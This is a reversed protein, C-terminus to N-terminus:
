SHRLELELGILSPRMMGIMKILEPSINTPPLGYLNTECASITSPLLALILARVCLTTSYYLLNLM